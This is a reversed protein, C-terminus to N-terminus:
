DLKKGCYPCFIIPIIDTHDDDCVLWRKVTKRNLLDYGPSFVVEFGKLIGECIHEKVNTM